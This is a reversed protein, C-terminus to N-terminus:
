LRQKNRGQLMNIYNNYIVLVNNQKIKTATDQVAKLNYLHAAFAEEPPLFSFLGTHIPNLEFNLVM